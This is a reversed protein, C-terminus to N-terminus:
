QVTTITVVSDHDESHPRSGTNNTVTVASGHNQTTMITVTNNHSDGLQQSERQATATTM